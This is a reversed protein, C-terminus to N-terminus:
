CHWELAVTGVERQLDHAYLPTATMKGGLDEITVIGFRQSSPGLVPGGSTNPHGSASDYIDHSPGQFGGAYPGVAYRGDPAAPGHIGVEHERVRRVSQGGIFHTVPGFSGSYSRGAASFYFTSELRSVGDYVTQRCSLGTVPHTGAFPGGSLTITGTGSRAADVTSEAPIVTVTMSRPTCNSACLPFTVTGTRLARYRISFDGGSFGPFPTASSRQVQELFPGVRAPPPFSWSPGCGGGGVALVQGVRLDVTQHLERAQGLDIVVDVADTPSVEWGPCAWAQSVAATTPSGCAALAITCAAAVLLGVRTPMLAIIASSGAEERALM